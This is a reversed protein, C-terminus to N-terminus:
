IFLGMFLWDFKFYYIEVVGLIGMQELYKWYQCERWLYVLLICILYNMIEGKLIIMKNNKGLVKVEQVLFFVM